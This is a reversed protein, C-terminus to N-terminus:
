CGGVSGLRNRWFGFNRGPAFIDLGSAATEGENRVRHEEGGPFYVTDGREVAAREEGVEVVLRGALVVLVQAQPHAHLPSEHGPPKVFHEVSLL